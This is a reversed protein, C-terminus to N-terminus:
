VEEDFFPDQDVPLEPRTDNPLEVGAADALTYVGLEERLFNLERQSMAM